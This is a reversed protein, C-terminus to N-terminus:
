EIRNMKAYGYRFALVIIVLQSIAYAFSAVITSFSGLEYSTLLVCITAIQYLLWGVVNPKTKGIVISHIYRFSSAFILVASIWAALEYLTITHALFTM